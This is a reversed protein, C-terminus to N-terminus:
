LDMSLDLQPMSVGKTALTADEADKGSCQEDVCGSVFPSGKVTLFISSNGDAFYVM